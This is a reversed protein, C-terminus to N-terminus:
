LGRSNRELAEIEAVWDEFAGRGKSPPRPLTSSTITQEDTADVDRVRIRRLFATARRVAM